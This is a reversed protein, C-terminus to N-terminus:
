TAQAWQGTPQKCFNYEGSASVGKASNSIAVRRCPTVGRKFKKIPKIEGGSQTQPNSWRRAEGDAGNDLVDILTQKFIILDQENFRGIPADKLFNLNGAWAPVAAVLLAVLLALHSRSATTM